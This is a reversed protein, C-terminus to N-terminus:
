ADLEAYLTAHGLHDATFRFPKRLTTGLQPRHILLADTNVAAPALRHQVVENV